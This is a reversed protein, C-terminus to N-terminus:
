KIKVSNFFANADAESCPIDHTCLFLVTWLRNGDVAARV